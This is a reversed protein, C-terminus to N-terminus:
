EGAMKEPICSQKQTHLYFFPKTPPTVASSAQILSRAAPQPQLIGAINFHRSHPTVCNSQWCRRSGSPCIEHARNHSTPNMSFIATMPPCTYPLGTLAPETHRMIQRCRVQIGGLITHSEHSVTRMQSTAPVHSAWYVSNGNLGTFPM